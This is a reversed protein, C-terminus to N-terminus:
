YLYSYVYFFSFILSNFFPFISINFSQFISINFSQFISIFGGREGKILPSPIPLRTGRRSLPPALPPNTILMSINFYSNIDRFPIFINARPMARPLILHYLILGTLAFSIYFSSFISFNFYQFM